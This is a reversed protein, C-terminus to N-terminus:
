GAQMAYFGGVGGRELAACLLPSGETALGARVLLVTSVLDALCIAALRWTEPAVKM